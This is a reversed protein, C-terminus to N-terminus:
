EKLCYKNLCTKSYSMEICRCLARLRRPTGYFGTLVNMEGVFADSYTPPRRRDNQSLVQTNGRVSLAKLLSRTLGAQVYKVEVREELIVAPPFNPKVPKRSLVNERSLSLWAKRNRSLSDRGFQQDMLPATLIVAARRGAKTGEIQM